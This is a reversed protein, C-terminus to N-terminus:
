EKGVRREESRELIDIIANRQHGTTDLYSVPNFAITNASFYTGYGIGARLKVGDVATDDRKLVALEECLVVLVKRFVMAIAQRNNGNTHGVASRFLTTYPFLTSRPPRRIM